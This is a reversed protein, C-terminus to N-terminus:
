RVLATIASPSADEPGGRPDTPRSGPLILLRVDPHLRQLVAPNTELALDPDSGHGNLIVTGPTTTATRLAELTLSVHNLTGLGARAVIVVDLDLSRVLDRVNWDWGMPSLLGGAGEVVVRYGAERLARVREVVLAMPFQLGAREAALAPTLPEALRLIPRALPEDLGSAERLIESDSPVGHEIGTEAPKFGIADDGAARLARILAAAVFTKGVGTDTGTVLLDRRKM